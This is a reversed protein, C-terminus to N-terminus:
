LAPPPESLPQRRTPSDHQASGGDGPFLGSRCVRRRPRWTVSVMTTHRVGKMAQTRTPRSPQNGGQHHADAHRAHHRWGPPQILQHEVDTPLQCGRRHRFRHQSNEGRRDDSLQREPPPPHPQTGAGLHVASHQGCVSVSWWIKRGTPAARDTLLTTTARYDHHVHDIHIAAPLQELIHVAGGFTPGTSVPRAATISSAGQAPCRPEAAVVKAQVYRTWRRHPAVAPRSGLGRPRVRPASSPNNWRETGAPEATPAAGFPGRSPVTRADADM